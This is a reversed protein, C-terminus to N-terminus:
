AAKKRSKASGNAVRIKLREKPSLGGWLGHPERNEVAFDACLDKVPCKQCLQRAMAYASGDDSFWADPDSTQCAPIVDAEEIAEMLVQWKRAATYSVFGRTIDEM